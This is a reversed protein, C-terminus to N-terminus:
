RTTSTFTIRSAVTKDAKFSQYEWEGNRVNDLYETGWGTHKEMVAYGMLNGVNADKEPNGQADLKAAYQLMTIVTGHPLPEGKKAAELVAASTYFERFQKNDPRDVTTFLVGAEHNEPFAVKDGGACVPGIVTFAALTAISAITAHTHTTM